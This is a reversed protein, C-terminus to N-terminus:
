DEAIDEVKVERCGSPKGSDEVLDGTKGIDFETITDLTFIEDVVVM